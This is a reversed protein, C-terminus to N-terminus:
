APRRTAIRNGLCGARRRSGRGRAAISARGPRRARGTSPRASRDRRAARARRRASARPSSTASRGAAPASVRLPDAAGRCAPPPTNPLRRLTTAAAAPAIDSRAPETVASRQQHGRVGRSHATSDNWEEIPSRKRLRQSRQHERHSCKGGWPFCRFGTRVERTRLEEVVRLALTTAWRVYARLMLMLM